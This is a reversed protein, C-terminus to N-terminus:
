TEATGDSLGPLREQGWLNSSVVRGQAGRLM